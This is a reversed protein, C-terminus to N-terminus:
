RKWDRGRITMLRDMLGPGSSSELADIITRGNLPTVLGSTLVRALAGRAEAKTAGYSHQLAMYAEGIVQNSAM